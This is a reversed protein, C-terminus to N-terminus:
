DGSSPPPAVPQRIVTKLREPATKRPDSLYIEHHKQRRGDFEYGRERIFAHLNAITPEEDQFPGIYLVQAALGEAFTELRLRSLAPLDKKRAVEAVAQAFLEPTVADPQAIMATWKWAAKRANVFENMDDAWWLGELPMVVYDVGGPARKLAFKMSYSVAYLAEIAERYATSVNPDGSGDVMLFTLPQVDVLVPTKPPAYLEKLERKLDIKAGQSVAM